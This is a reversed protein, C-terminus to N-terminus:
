RGCPCIKNLNTLACMGSATVGYILYNKKYAEIYEWIKNFTNNVITTGTMLVLESASVLQETMTNGDWIEVDFRIAGINNRNLDTCLINKPGFNRVLGELIAPNLGILGIQRAVYHKKIHKCIEEACVEPEDDRCHIVKDCIGTYKLVANMCAIFLAREKNNQLPLSVIDRLKGSFEGPSDTFAHSKVGMFSAEIVREKGTVIPFDRRGPNGIAEEPSLTKVLILIDEDMFGNKKLIEEFKNKAMNLWDNVDM